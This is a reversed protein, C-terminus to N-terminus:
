GSGPAREYGRRTRVLLHFGRAALLALAEDNEGEVGYGLVVRAGALRLWEVTHALLWTAVGRRRHGPEVHLNDLEAWGALRSRTGGATLDASVEVFGLERDGRMARLVTGLDGVERRLALGEVPAPPPPASGHVEAYLVQEVRGGHAFGARVYVDHVHPWADPVGYVAPAPLSGDAHLLRVDWHELHAVCAAALVDAPGGPRADAPWAVLWKIEGTDRFGDSVEGHTGYRVLHAAAVIRDRAVVVLTARDVAWPDIVYEGPDRELQSLVANAPISIGPLVAGVHANVLATLQVRDDRRFPRVEVHDSM